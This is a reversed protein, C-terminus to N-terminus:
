YKEALADLEKQATEYEPVSKLIKETDVYGFGQGFAFATAVLTFIITLFCHKM